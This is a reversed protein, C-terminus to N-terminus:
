TIFCKPWPLSLRRNSEPFTHLINCYALFSKSIYLIYINLKSSHTAKLILSTIDTSHVKLITPLLTYNRGNPAYVRSFCAFIKLARQIHAKLMLFYM